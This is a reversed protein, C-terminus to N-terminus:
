TSAPSSRRSCRRARRRVHRHANRRDGAGGHRLDPCGHLEVGREACQKAIELTESYTITWTDVIIQGRKRSQLLGGDGTLLAQVAKGNPVSLFVIDADGM